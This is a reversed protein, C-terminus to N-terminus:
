CDLFVTFVCQFISDTVKCFYICENMWENQMRLCITNCYQYYEYKNDCNRLRRFFFFDEEGLCEDRLEAFLTCTLVVQSCFLEVTILQPHVVHTVTNVTCLITFTREDSTNSSHVTIINYTYTTSFGQLHAQLGVERMTLGHLLVHDVM